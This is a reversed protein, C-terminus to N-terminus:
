YFAEKKYEENYQECHNIEEEDWTEELDDEQFDIKLMLASFSLSDKDLERQKKKM